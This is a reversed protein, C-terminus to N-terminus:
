RLRNNAPLAQLLARDVIGTPLDVGSLGYTHITLLQELLQMTDPLCASVSSRFFEKRDSTTDDRTSAVEESTTRLLTIGLAFNSKLLGCLHCMYSAHTDPFERKGMLAILHAVKERQLRSVHAVNLSAYYHWLTERLRRRDTDDLYKWKRTIATEITSATFFWVYQNALSPAAAANGNSLHYLCHSWADSSNQFELVHKEIDHKRANSTAPHHFETLLDALASLQISSDKQGPSFHALFDTIM